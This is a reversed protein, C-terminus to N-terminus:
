FRKVMAPRISFNDLKDRMVERYLDFVLANMRQATYHALYRAYGREGQSRLKTQDTQRILALIGEVDDPEFLSGTEGDVVIDQLGGVRSAFVATRAQMAEVAVLGFGEWRSPVLLLDAQAYLDFVRERPQWGTLQINAPLNFINNTSLIAGGIAIGEAEDGLRRMVEVYTDFGKQQDFRGAFAIVKRNHDARKLADRESIGNDIVVMRPDAVGISLAERREYASVCIIRDCLSSLAREVVATVKNMLASGERSFAWGHPCYVIRSERPLFARCLRVLGGAISSHVHIIDPRTRRARSITLYVLRSLTALSGRRHPFTTLRLKPNQIKGLELLNVEPLIVEVSDIDQAIQSRVLEDLCATVGGLPTETIHLIRKPEQSVKAESLSLAAGLGQM